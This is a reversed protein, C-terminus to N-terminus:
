MGREVLRDQHTQVKKYWLRFGLIMLGVGVVFGGLAMRFLYILRTALVSLLESKAELEAAKVAHANFREM